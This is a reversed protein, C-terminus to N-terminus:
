PTEVAPACCPMDVANRKNPRRSMNFFIGDDGESRAGQIWARKYARAVFGWSIDPSSEVASDRTIAVNKFSEYRCISTTVVKKEPKARGM